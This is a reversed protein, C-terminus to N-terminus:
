QVFTDDSSWKKAPAQIFSLAENTIEKTIVKSKKFLHIYLKLIYM